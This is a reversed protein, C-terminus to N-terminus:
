VSPLEACSATLKVFKFLTLIAKTFLSLFYSLFVINASISLRFVVQVSMCWLSQLDVTAPLIVSWLPWVYRIM